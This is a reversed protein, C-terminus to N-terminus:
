CLNIKIKIIKRYLVKLFGLKIIYNKMNKILKTLM